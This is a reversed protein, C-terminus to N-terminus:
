EADAPPPAVRGAIRDLDRMGQATIIRGGKPHKAVVGIAELQKLCARAVSGSAKVFHKPKVCRRSPGGHIKKFAGM